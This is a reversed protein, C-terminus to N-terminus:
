VINAVLSNNHFQGGTAVLLLQGSARTEPTCCALQTRFM